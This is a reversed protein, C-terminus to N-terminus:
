YKLSLSVGYTAPDGYTTIVFGLNSVDNLYAVYQEDGINKGWLAVEWHEDASSLALRANVLWYSDMLSVPSNSSELYRESRYNFDTSAIISMGNSMEYKYRVLGNFTWEPANVAENGDSTVGNLQFEGYEADLWGIGGKIDLGSLPVWWAELEAGVTRGSGSNTTQPLVAGAIDANIQQDDNRYHFISGTLQLSNDLLKSKFGIEYASILEPDYPNFDANSFALNASHGGSRFGTSVSAYYLHDEAPTYNVGLKFSLNQDIRDDDVSANAPGLPSRLRDADGVPAIFPLQIFTDGDIEKREWTYRAGAVLQVEESVQFETHGFLSISDTSQDYETSQLIFGTVPDPSAIPNYTFVSFQDDHEYFFGMLWTWSSDDSSTLRLEQTFVDLDSYFMTHGGVLPDASSDEYTDRIYNDYATISTFTAGKVGHDVRVYGGQSKDDKGMRRAGFQDSAGNDQNVVFPNDEGAHFGTFDVCEESSGRVTGDLFASCFPIPIAAAAAAGTGPSVAEAAAFAAGRAALFGSLENADVVGLNQFPLLDSNDEGYHFSFLVDTDSAATWQLQARVGFQDKEGLEGGDFLNKTPGDSSQLTYGSLRGLLNESLPGSAFAEVRSRDFRGYEFDVGAEFEETPKKTIFNVTGGTTNRGFLTGQPGKLSEVREIDFLSMGLQFSKSLYVEDVHVAVPSDTNQGFENLGQGRISFSPQGFGYTVQTNPLFSGVDIPNYIGLEKMEKSSMANVTGGVDLISQSRKQATVVIEEIISGSSWSTSSVALAIVAPLQQKLLNRKVSKIGM